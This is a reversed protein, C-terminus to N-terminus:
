DASGESNEYLEEYLHLSNDSYELGSDVRGSCGFLSLGILTNLILLIYLKFFKKMM